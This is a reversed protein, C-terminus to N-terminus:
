FGVEEYIEFIVFKPNRINEKNLSVLFCILSSLTQLLNNGTM